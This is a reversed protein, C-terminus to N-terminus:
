TFAYKRCRGWKRWSEIDHINQRYNVISLVAPRKASQTKKEDQSESNGRNEQAVVGGGDSVLGINWIWPEVEKFETGCKKNEFVIFTYAGEVIYTFLHFYTM